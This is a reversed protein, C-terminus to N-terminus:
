TFAPVLNPTLSRHLWERSSRVQVLVRGRVLSRGPWCPEAYENRELPCGYASDIVKRLAATRSLKAGALRVRWDILLGSLGPIAAASTDAGARTHGINSCPNKPKSFTKFGSKSVLM